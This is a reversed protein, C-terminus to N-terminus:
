VKTISKSFEFGNLIGPLFKCDKDLWKRVRLKRQEPSFYFYYALVFKVSEFRRDIERM